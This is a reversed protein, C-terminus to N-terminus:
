EPVPHERVMHLLCAASTGRLVEAQSLPEGGDAALRDGVM